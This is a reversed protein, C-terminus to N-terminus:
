SIVEVRKLLKEVFSHVKESRESKWFIGAAHKPPRLNLANRETLALFTEEDVEDTSQTGIVLLKPQKEYRM